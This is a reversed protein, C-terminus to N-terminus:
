KCAAQSIYYNTTGYVSHVYPWQLPDDVTALAQNLTRGEGKKRFMNTYCNVEIISFSTGDTGIRRTVVLLAEKGFGRDKVIMHYSADVDSPVDVSVAAAYVSTSALLMAAIAILKKM